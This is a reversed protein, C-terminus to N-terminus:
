HQGYPNGFNGGNFKIEQPYISRTARWSTKDLGRNFSVDALVNGDKEASGVFIRFNDKTGLSRSGDHDVVLDDIM